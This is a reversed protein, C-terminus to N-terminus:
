HKTSSDNDLDDEVDFILIKSLLVVLDPLCLLRDELKNCSRCRSSQWERASAWHRISMCAMLRRAICSELQM